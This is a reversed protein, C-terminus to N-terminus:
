LNRIEKLRAEEYQHHIGKWVCGFPGKGIFEEKKIEHYPISVPGM